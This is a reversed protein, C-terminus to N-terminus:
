NETCIYPGLLTNEQWCKQINSIHSFSKETDRPELTYLPCMQMLMPCLRGKFVECGRNQKQMQESRVGGEPSLGEQARVRGRGM